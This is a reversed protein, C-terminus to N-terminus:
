SNNSLNGMFISQQLSISVRRCNPYMSGTHTLSMFAIATIIMVFRKM